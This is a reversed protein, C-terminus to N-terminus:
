KPWSADAFPLRSLVLNFRQLPRGLGLRILAPSGAKAIKAESGTCQLPIQKQPSQAEIKM